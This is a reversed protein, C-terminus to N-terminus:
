EQSAHSKPRPSPSTAIAIKAGPLTFTNGPLREVLGREQLRLMRKFTDSGIPPRAVLGEKTQEVMEAYLQLDLDEEEAARQQTKRTSREGLKYGIYAGALTGVLGILAEVM